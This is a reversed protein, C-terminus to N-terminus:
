SHFSFASNKAPYKEENWFSKLYLARGSLLCFTKKNTQKKEGFWVIWMPLQWFCLSYVVWFYEGTGSGARRRAKWCRQTALEGLGSSRSHERLVATRLDIRDMLVSLGGLFVTDSTSMLFPCQGSPFVPLYRRDENLTSHLSSSPTQLMKQLKSILSIFVSEALRFSAWLVCPFFFQEPTPVAFHINTNHKILQIVVLSFNRAFSLYLPISPLIVCATSSPCFSPLVSPFPTKVWELIECVCHRRQLTSWLAPHRYLVLGQAPVHAACM